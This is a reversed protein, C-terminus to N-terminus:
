PAPTSTTSSTGCRRTPFAPASSEGATPSVPPLDLKFVGDRGGVVVADPIGPIYAASEFGPDTLNGTITTWTVGADTTWYVDTADVAVVNRWENPDLAIATINTSTASPQTLQALSGGPMTRLYLLNRSGVYLVDDNPVGGSRGGYVIANQPFPFLGGSNCNVDTLGPIDLLNDGQDFSEFVANCGGIVM